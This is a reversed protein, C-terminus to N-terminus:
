ELRVAASRGASSQGVRAGGESASSVCTVHVHSGGLEGRVGSASAAGDVVCDVAGERDDLAREAGVGSGATRAESAAGDDVVARRENALALEVEVGGAGAPRDVQ